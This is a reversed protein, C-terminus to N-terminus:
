CAQRLAPALAAPVDQVVLQTGGGQLERAVEALRRCGGATALRVRHLDLYIRLGPRQRGVRRLFEVLKQGTRDTLDGQVEIITLHQGIFTPRLHLTM